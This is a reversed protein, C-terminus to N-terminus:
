FGLDFYVRDGGLRSQFILEVDRPQKPFSYVLHSTVTGGAEITAVSHTSEMFELNGELGTGDVVKILLLASMDLPRDGRNAIQVSVTVRDGSRRANVLKIAADDAIQSEGAGRAIRWEKLAEVPVYFELTAKVYDGSSTKQIKSVQTGPYLRGAVEGPRDPDKLIDTKKIIETVQAPAFSVVSVLVVISSMVIIRPHYSM